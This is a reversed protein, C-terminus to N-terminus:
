LWIWEDSVECLADLARDPTAKILRELAARMEDPPMGELMFYARQTVSRFPTGKALTAMTVKRTTTLIVAFAARVATARCM